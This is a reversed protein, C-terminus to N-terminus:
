KITKTTKLFAFYRVGGVPKEFSACFYYFEVNYCLISCVILVRCHFGACCFCTSQKFAQVVAAENKYGNM